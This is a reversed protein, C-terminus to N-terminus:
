QREWVAIMQDCEYDVEAKSLLHARAMNRLTTLADALQSGSLPRKAGYMSTDPKIGPESPVKQVNQMQNENAKDSAQVTM